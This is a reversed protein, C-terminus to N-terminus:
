LYHPVKSCQEHVRASEQVRMGECGPVGDLWGTLSKFFITSSMTPTDQMCQDGNLGLGDELGVATRM